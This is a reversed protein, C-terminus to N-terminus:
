LRAQVSRDSATLVANVAPLGRSCLPRRTRYCLALLAGCSRSCAVVPDRVDHAQGSERQNAEDVADAGAGEVAEGHWVKAHLQRGAAAGRRLRVHLSRFICSCAGAGRRRAARRRRRPLRCWRAGAAAAGFALAAAEHCVKPGATGQERRGVFHLPKCARSRLLQACPPRVTPVTVLHTSDPRRDAAVGARGAGVAAGAAVARRWATPWLAIACSRMCEPPAQTHALRDFQQGLQHWAPAGAIARTRRSDIRMCAASAIGIFCCSARCSRIAASCCASMSDLRVSLIWPREPSRPSSGRMYATTCKYPASNCPLQMHTVTGGKPHAM